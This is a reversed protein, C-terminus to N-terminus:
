SSVDKGKRWAVVVAGRCHFHLCHYEPCSTIVIFLGNECSLSEVETHSQSYTCTFAGPFHYCFCTVRAYYIIVFGLGTRHMKICEGTQDECYDAGFVLCKVETTGM